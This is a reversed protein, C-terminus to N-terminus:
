GRYVDFQPCAGKCSCLMCGVPDPNTPFMGARIMRVRLALEDKVLQTHEFEIPHLINEIPRVDGAVYGKGARKYPKLNRVHCWEVVADSELREWTDLAPVLV